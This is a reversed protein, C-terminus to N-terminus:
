DAQVYELCASVHGLAAFDGTIVYGPEVDVLGTCTGTTIIEGARLGIGRRSLHNAVWVLVNFPDDLAAAGTGQAVETGDLLLRCTHQTLNLHPQYPVPEGSVFAVNAGGDATVQERGSGALGGTFRSGVLELAPVVTAVSAQLEAYVYPQLRPALNKAMGFAFEVEVQVQHAAYVPVSAGSRYCFRRLLRGAGPETTGLRAQALASTSGVKWGLTSEDLAAAVAAQITYASELDFVFNPNPVKSGDLRAAVLDMVLADREDNTM